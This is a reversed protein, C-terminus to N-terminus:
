TYLSMLRLGLGDIEVRLSLDSRSRSKIIQSNFQMESLSIIFCINVAQVTCHSSEYQREKSWFIVREDRM